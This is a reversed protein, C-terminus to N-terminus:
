QSNRLVVIRLILLVALTLVGLGGGGGSNGGSSVSVDRTTTGTNGFANTCTLTVTYKGASTFSVSPNSASSDAIGSNAGFNWDYNLGGPVGNASCTGSFNITQDISMSASSVPVSISAVPNAYKSAVARVVNPLGYGYIGNPSGSGLQTAGAKLLDYPDDNPFGSELLAILAAIHPAAASTGCFPNSFGGAGTVKVCDVGVFDPKMRSESGTAPQYLFVPGQSSYPEINDFSSAPDAGVTVEYPYPLASQGYISGAATHPTTYVGYGQGSILVKLNPDPNGDGPAYLIELYGQKQSSSNNTWTNGQLPQPGPTNTPSTNTQNCPINTGSINIGQNCALPQNNSADFLVVDYDNPDNPPNGSSSPWTDGWELLYGVTDGAPVYFSMQTPNSSGGFDQALTYTIGNITQSVGTPNWSGAWFGTADNGAATVLRVGPNNMQFNQIPVVFDPDDTFMAIGPFGLDDVIVLNNNGFHNTFDTLCEVFEASTGPGCFGLNAGPALDYIIEMMATGEDGTSGFSSNNPDNWICPSSNPCTAPLDGTSQSQPISNDGDSIVGVAVGSGNYGTLSRFEPANLILDGQSVVSGTRPLASVPPSRRVFAYRPVTVRTIGTLAAASELEDAPIWAQVVGLAPSNLIGTAGLAALETSDPPNGNRDYHLYVQVQGAANWRPEWPSNQRFIERTLAASMMPETRNEQAATAIVALRKDLKHGAVSSLAAHASLPLIGVLLIPILRM